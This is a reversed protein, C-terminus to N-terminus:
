KLISNYQKGIKDGLQKGHEIGTRFHIGGYLRSMGAEDSAARISPFSREMGLYKRESTDHFAIQEGFLATLVTAAAASIVSHGSPYEPFPPTQLLSNWESELQERIVTIPRVTKQQFKEEWCAIFGDFIAAATIAYAQATKQEDAKQQLCLIKTISIWHGVPTTKKTAYTFHGKHQTVFPNDDWYRAISDQAPSISKSLAYVEEVEKFFASNRNLDYKNPKGIAFQTSSDLLLPKIKRWHPETADAYEPPTQKWFGAENFVSHRPMSRTQKYIDAAARKLIVDAIQKGNAVSRDFVEQDLSKFKAMMQKSAQAISDKSFVLKESVTMFATVASLYLNISDKEKPISSFGKMKGLMSKDQQQMLAEYYALTSYAYMRSAVPPSVIDHVIVDTLKDVCEHEVMSGSPLEQKSSFSCSSIIVLCILSLCSYGTFKMM